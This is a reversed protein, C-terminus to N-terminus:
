IIKLNSAFGFIRRFVQILVSCNCTIVKEIEMRKKYMIKFNFKYLSSQGSRQFVEVCAEDCGFRNIFLIMVFCLMVFIQYICIHMYYLDIISCGKIWCQLRPRPTMVPSFVKNKYHFNGLLM